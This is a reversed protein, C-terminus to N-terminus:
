KITKTVVTPNIKENIAKDISVKILTVKDAGLASEVWSNIDSETVDDFAKFSSLDSTNLSVVGLSEASNKDETDDEGKLRWHVNFIVDNKGDKNPYTDVTNCNWTYTIAM